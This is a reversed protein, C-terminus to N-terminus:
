MIPYCKVGMRQRAPPLSTMNSSLGLHAVQLYRSSLNSSHRPARSLGPLCASISADKSRAGGEGGQPHQLSKLMMLSLAYEVICQPGAAM